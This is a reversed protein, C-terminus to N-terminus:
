GLGKVAGHLPAAASQKSSANSPAATSDQFDPSTKVLVVGMVVVVVVVM